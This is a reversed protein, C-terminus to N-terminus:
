PTACLRVRSFHRLLLLEGSPPVPCHRETNGMQAMQEEWLCQKGTRSSGAGCSGGARASFRIRVAAPALSQQRSILCTLNFNISRSAGERWALQLGLKSGGMQLFSKDYNIMYKIPPHSQHCSPTHGQTQSYAQSDRRGHSVSAHRMGLEM